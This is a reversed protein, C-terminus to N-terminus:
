RIIRAKFIVERLLANLQAIPKFGIYERERERERERPTLLTFTLWRKLWSIRAFFLCSYVAQSRLIHIM